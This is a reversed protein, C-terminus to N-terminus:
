AATLVAVGTTRVVRRTRLIDFLWIGPLILVILVIFWQPVAVASMSVPPVGPEAVHMLAFGAFRTTRSQTQPAEISMLGDATDTECKWGSFRPWMPATDAGNTFFMLRGRASWLGSEREDNLWTLGDFTTFSRVCLILTLICLLLSTVITLIFLRQRM